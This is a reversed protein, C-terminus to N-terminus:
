RDVTLSPCPLVGGTRYAPLLRGENAMARSFDTVARDRIHDVLEPDHAELERTRADLDVESSM